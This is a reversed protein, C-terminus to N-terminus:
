DKAARVAVLMEYDPDFHLLEAESLEEVVLGHLFAVSAFVNGYAMVRVHEESFTEAFMRKASMSTFRWFEGWSEADYRSIQSIGPFTCLVVGGPKLIREVTRIAEQVNYIFQLTQTLIICDYTNSAIGPADTLDAIINAKPNDLKYHLIDSQNVRERGFKQTYYNDGVELVHGQIDRFYQALFTEIYYRDICQGYQIGFVPGIPRLRRFSGFRVMHVPPRRRLNRRLRNIREKVNKFVDTGVTNSLRDEFSDRFNM